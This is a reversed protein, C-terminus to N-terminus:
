NGIKKLLEDVKQGYREPSSTKAASLYKKADELKKQAYANLGLAYNAVASECGKELASKYNFEALSYDGAAYAILGLYYPPLYSAGDQKAATEFSVRAADYAKEGYSKVGDGVLDAFTKRGSLYSSFAAQADAEVYWSAARAAIAAQNEELKADRRLCSISHWLLRNYAKDGSNVLFSAFAWSEPYVVDLESRSEDPSLSLLKNLPLFANKALLAKATPLWALNEPFTLIKAKPDWAASEFYVAFGDRMWLPPNNVFAKLYQVFAQHVLSEGAEQGIAEHGIAGSGERSFLLLERREPLSYHLYVFDDKTQGAANQLYADFGAKDKFEKVKLKGPLASSDFRFTGGFLGYLAEFEAGLAQARDQGLESSILYHPSEYSAMSSAAPAAAPLAAPAAPSPAAAPAAPTSSAADTPEAIGLAVSLLLVTVLVVSRKM